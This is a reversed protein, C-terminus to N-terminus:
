KVRSLEVATFLLCGAAIGEIVVLPIDPVAANWIALYAWVLGCGLAAVKATPIQSALNRYVLWYSIFTLAATVPLWGFVKYVVTAVTLLGGITTAVAAACKMALMRGASAPRGIAHPAAGIAGAAASNETVADAAPASTASTGANAMPAPDPTKHDAVPLLTKLSDALRQLHQELPPTLADLWHVPGMFYALAKTPTSDEIRVPIVPVGRGVVREVERRIQPSSNANSSFILVMARCSDLADMIAAGWDSGPLIDRPAMWCRIGAAELAACTADATSKDHSSYSIFVDFQM